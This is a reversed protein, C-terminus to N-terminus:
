EKRMEDISIKRYEAGSSDDILDISVEVRPREAYRRTVTLDIIQTDDHYAVSNLSDCVIKAINDADPKKIPLVAGSLMLARRKKSISKPIGFYAAITMRLYKEKPAFERPYKRQYELKLLNEYSATEEPTYPKVFGGAKSFRARGKGRPEGPVTFTIYSM